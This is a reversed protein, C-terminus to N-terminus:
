IGWNLELKCTVLCPPVAPVVFTKVVRSSLRLIYVTAVLRTVHMKSSQLSNSVLSNDPLSPNKSIPPLTHFPTFVLFFCYFVVQVLGTCLTWLGCSFVKCTQGYCHCPLNNSNSLRVVWHGTFCVKQTHPILDCQQYHLSSDPTVEIIIKLSVSLGTYIYILVSVEHSPQSMKVPSWLFTKVLRGLRAPQVTSLTSRPLHM